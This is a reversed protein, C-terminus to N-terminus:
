CLAQICLATSSELVRYLRSSDSFHHIAIRPLARHFVSSDPGGTGGRPAIPLKNYDV